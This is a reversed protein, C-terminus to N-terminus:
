ESSNLCHAAEKGLKKLLALLQKRETLNLPSASAEMDESHQQFLTRIRQEGASTLHIIRVRRDASDFRREVYGKKELRDVVATLAGSTLSLKEGLANIPMAGKHLLAELATFDSFCLGTAEISRLAHKELAQHAKMLILWLHVGSLNEQPAEERFM